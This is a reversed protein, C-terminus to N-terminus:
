IKGKSLPLFLQYLANRIHAIPFESFTKQVREQILHNSLNGISGIHTHSTSQPIQFTGSKIEGAVERYADRFPIGEKVKEHVRDVSFVYQYRPNELLNPSIEIHPLIDILITLISHMEQFGPFILDKTLQFDRHYGSPLNSQMLNLQSSIGMLLNTRGRILEFVDPNKKHPMISSGTTYEDPLRVFGLDQSMYYCIDSAFKNLSTSIAGIAQSVALETKGRSMQAYAANVELDEFGLLHTTFERDIPLSTGYGAASGLPNRNSFKFALLLNELDNGLSEAYAGFWLGFSSPMAVQFHTYGPLLQDKFQESLGILVDFLAKLEQALLILERRYFLKLDLLVQDNRSRGIHIKRGIEGLKETVLYEIQSHIDEMGPDITFSGTEIEDLVHILVLRLADVEAESLFGIKSLMIAHAMNGWVDAEALYHDWERDKGVTFKSVMESTKLGKEWLKM